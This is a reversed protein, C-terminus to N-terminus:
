GAMGKGDCGVFALKVCFDRDFREFCLSLIAAGAEWSLASFSIGGAWFAWVMAWM